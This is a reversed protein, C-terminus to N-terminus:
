VVIKIQEVLRVKNPDLGQKLQEYFQDLNVDAADYFNDHMAEIEKRVTKKTDNDARNDTNNIRAKLLNVIIPKYGDNPLAPFGTNLSEIVPQLQAATIAQVNRTPKNTATQLLEDFAQKSKEAYNAYEEVAAVYAAKTADHNTKATEVATTIQTVDGPAVQTKNLLALQNNIQDKLNNLKELPNGGSQLISEIEAVNVGSRNLKQTYESLKDEYVARKESGSSGGGVLNNLRTYYKTFKQIDDINLNKNM